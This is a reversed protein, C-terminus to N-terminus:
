LELIFLTCVIDGASMDAVMCFNYPRYCEKQIRLMKEYLMQALWWSALMVHWSMSHILIYKYDCLVVDMKVVIFM